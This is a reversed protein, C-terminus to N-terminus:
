LYGPVREPLYVLHFKGTAELSFVVTIDRRPVFMYHRGILNYQHVVLMSFGSQAAIHIHSFELRVFTLIIDFTLRSVKQKRSRSVM